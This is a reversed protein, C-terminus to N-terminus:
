FMALQWATKSTNDLEVSTINIPNGTPNELEMIVLIGVAEQPNRGVYKRPIGDLGALYGASTLNVSLKM